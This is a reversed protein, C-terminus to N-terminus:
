EPKPPPPLPPDGDRDIDGVQVYSVRDYHHARGPQTVKKVGPEAALVASSKGIMLVAAVALFKAAGSLAYRLLGGLHKSFKM